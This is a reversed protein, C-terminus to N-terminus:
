PAAFMKDVQYVVHWDLLIVEDSIDPDTADIRYLRGALLDHHQLENGVGDIDYDIVFILEYTDYQSSRGVLVAQEVDVDNSTAPTVIGARTVEWSFRFKFYDDVDENAALCVYVHFSINSEGDWRGPITQRFFLEEDDAAYIPFSFGKFVGITVQTPKSHAIQNTYDIEPRLVLVRKATGHLTVVGASDIDLYNAAGGIAASLPFAKGTADVLVLSNKLIKGTVGDFLAIANNTAGAPGTMDGVGSGIDDKRLVDEGAVPATGVKITHDTEFAADHVADDYQIVDANGGLRIQRLAM